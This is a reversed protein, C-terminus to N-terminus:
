TSAQIWNGHVDFPVVQPIDVCAIQSLSRADLFLLYSTNRNADLVVDIIVGDDERRPRTSGVFVPENPFHNPPAKWRISRRSDSVCTKSLGWMRYADETTVGYVYDYRKGRYRSNISPMEFPRSPIPTLEGRRDDLDLTLRSLTPTIEHSRSRERLTSSRMLELQGYTDRSSVFSADDYTIMDIHVCRGEEFANVCHMSFFPDLRFTHTPGRVRPTRADFVFAKVGAKHGFWRMVEVMSTAGALLGGINVSFPYQFLVVHKPTVAFSHMLPIHDLKTVGIYTRAGDDSDRYLRLLRTSPDCIYNYTDRGIRQPHAASICHSFRPPNLKGVVELTHIDVVNSDTSDSTAYLRDGSFHVNINNNDRGSPRQFLSSIRSLYSFAPRVPYYTIQPSLANRRRANTYTESGLVRSQFQVRGNSINFKHLKSFGDFQHGMRHQGVEFVAPGNRILVGNLWRPVRGELAVPDVFETLSTKWGQAFGDNARPAPRPFRM